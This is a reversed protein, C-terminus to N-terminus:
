NWWTCSVCTQTRPCWSLENSVPPTFSHPHDTRPWAACRTRFCPIIMFYPGILRCQELRESQSVTHHCVPDASCMMGNWVAWKWLWWLALASMLDTLPTSTMLWAVTMRCPRSKYEVSCLQVYRQGWGESKKRMWDSVTSCFLEWKQKMFCKIILQRTSVPFLLSLFFFDLWFETMDGHIQSLNLSISWIQM